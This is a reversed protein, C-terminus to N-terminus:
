QPIELLGVSTSRLATDALPVLSILEGHADPATVALAARMQGRGSLRHVWVSAAGTVDLNASTDAGLTLRRSSAAGARDTTVVEVGVAAGSGTLALTQTVPRGELRLGALPAGAVGLIPETSGAWGFDGTSTPATRRHSVAAAVVPVDARVQVGYVGRTLGALSLDRVQGGAVRLVGGRPLARPGSATLVRAQVVAEGDGPVAVRLAAAGDLSVVPIVQDRSPAATAVADDSGAAISGDLWHDNLVAHVLGGHAVVHVAPSAEAGSISDLLVTTRGRSPVVVGRGNPSEVAGKAGHLTLDVTVPNEGPNTLVLREQRGAAGGGAVLWADASPRGCAVIGLSRHDGDPVLWSQTAAIGPALSQRGRVQVSSAPSLPAAAVAGRVDPARLLARGSLSTLALSGAESPLTVGTLAREPAAAVAVAVDVPADELGALGKLEPGPCVLASSRVTATGGDRSTDANRSPGVALAGPAQMAGYVLGAGVAATVASRVIGKTSLIV